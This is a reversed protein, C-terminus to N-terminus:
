GRREQELYWECFESFREAELAKKYAELPRPLRLHANGVDRLHLVKDQEKNEGNAQKLAFKELWNTYDNSYIIEGSSAAYTLKKGTEDYFMKIMQEATLDSM